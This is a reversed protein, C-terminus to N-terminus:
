KKKKDYKEIALLIKKRFVASPHDNKKSTKKYGEMAAIKDLVGIWIKPDAGIFQMFRYAAIDAEIEQERSYRMKYRSTALYADSDFAGSALIINKAYQNNPTSTYQSNVAGAYAYATAAVAGGIEAWVKNNREKKRIAYIRNLSHKGIFHQIEHALVAVIEMTALKEILGTNIAIFGTPYTSANFENDPMVHVELHVDIRHFDFIDNLKNILGKYNEDCYKSPKINQTIYNCSITYENIANKAAKSKATLAKDIRKDYWHRKWWFEAVKNKPLNQLESPVDYQRIYEECDLGIDWFSQAQCTLTFTAIVVIILLVRKVLQKM